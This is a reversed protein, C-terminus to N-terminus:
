LYKIELFFHSDQDGRCATLSVNMAFDVFSLSNMWWYSLLNFSHILNIYSNTLIFLWLNNRKDISISHFIFSHYAELFNIGVRAM